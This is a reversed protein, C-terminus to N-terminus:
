NQEIINVVERRRRKQEMQRLEARKAAARDNQASSAVSTASGPSTTKLKDVSSYARHRLVNTDKYVDKEHEGFDKTKM